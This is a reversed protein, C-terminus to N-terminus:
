LLLSAQELKEELRGLKELVISTLLDEEPFKLIRHYSEQLHSSEFKNSIALFYNERYTGFSKDM